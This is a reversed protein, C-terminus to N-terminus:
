SCAPRNVRDYAILFKGVLNDIQRLIHEQDNRHSTTLGLEWTVAIQSVDSYRDYLAKHFSLDLYAIPGAFQMRLFLVHNSRGAIRAQELQAQARQHILHQTLGLQQATTSKTHMTPDHAVMWVPECNVFLKFHQVSEPQTSPTDPDESELMIHPAPNPVSVDLTAAAMIPALVLGWVMVLLRVSPM